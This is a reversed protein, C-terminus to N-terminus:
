HTYEVCFVEGQPSVAYYLDENGDCFNIVIFAGLEQEWTNVLPYPVTDISVLLRPLPASPTSLYVGSNVFETEGKGLYIIYVLAGSEPNFFMNHEMVPGMLGSLEFITIVEGSDIKTLRLAVEGIVRHDSSYFTNGNVWGITHSWGRPDFLWKVESGDPRAAWVSKYGDSGYGDFMEGHIIWEGDPSWEPFVAQNEGSTLRTTTQDATDFVYLDSSPGEIAGLFALYRGDPSWVPDSWRAMGPSNTTQFPPYSTEPFGPYYSFLNIQVFTTSNDKQIINFTTEDTFEYYWAADRNYGISYWWPADTASPTITTTRVTSTPSHTESPLATDTPIITATSLLDTDTPTLVEAPSSCSVLLMFSILPILNKYSM